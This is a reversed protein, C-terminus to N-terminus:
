EISVNELRFYMGSANRPDGNADIKKSDSSINIVYRQGAPVIIKKSYDSGQANFILKESGDTSTIKLQSPVDFGSLVTMKLTLEKNHLSLNNLELEVKNSCWNWKREGQTEVGYCGNWKILTPSKIIEKKKIFETNSMSNKYSQTFNSLDFYVERNDSSIVSPAGLYSHLDEEMQKGNDAYGNRDLYIGQFDALSLQELFDKVPKQVAEKQWVDSFRGQMAGFSWSIKNSHLYMRFHDYGGMKNLPSAEPFFIYPLQFVKAPTEASIASEIKGVFDKDTSFSNELAQYNPIYNKSTQDFLAILLLVILLVNFVSKHLYKRTYDIIICIALISLFAIIISVRNLGRISPSVILAFLTGFGGVTCLLVLSLNLNSLNILLESKEKIKWQRLSTIILILFGISSILGLSAFSNENVLPATSTYKKKLRELLNIRHNDIPLVLQSIKLGLIETHSTDRIAVETNKGTAYNNYLSPSINILVGFGICAVLILSIKIHYLARFKLSSVLGGIIFLFCIFFAYYVGSSSLLLCIFLSYLKKKAGYNDRDNSMINVILLIMLPILYYASLFLHAEGRLFHYPMFSYLLSGILSVTNSFNLKRMVFLSIVTTLPFTLLFYLNLVSAYDPIFLSILKMIFFHFNDAMPFDYMELGFPAGLYKNNFYWGNEILGKVMITSFLGDANYDLPVSLNAKWLQMLFILIAISLAASFTYMFFVKIM